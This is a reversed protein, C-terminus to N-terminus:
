VKFPIIQCKIAYLLAMILEKSSIKLKRINRLAPDLNLEDYLNLILLNIKKIIKGISM